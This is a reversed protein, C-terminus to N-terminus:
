GREDEDDVDVLHVAAEEASSGAGDIGVDMAYLEPEVDGWTAETEVLRGARGRGVEADLLEGDTDSTDGLGDGEVDSKEPVERALRAALAEGALEERETTGWDDVAWPRDPPSWGTDLVDSVGDRYDLTEEPQLVGSAEEPDTGDSGWNFPDM